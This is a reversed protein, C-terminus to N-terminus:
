TDMMLAGCGGRRCGFGSGHECPGAVEWHEGGEPAEERADAGDGEGGRDDEHQGYQTVDQGPQPQPHDCAAREQTGQALPAGDQEDGAALGLQHVGVADKGGALVAHVAAVLTLREPAAGRRSAAAKTM